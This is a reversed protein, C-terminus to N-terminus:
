EGEASMTPTTANESSVVLAQILFVVFFSSVKTKSFAM